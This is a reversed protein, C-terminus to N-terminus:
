AKKLRTGDTKIAKTIHLNGDEDESHLHQTLCEPCTTIIDVGQEDEPDFSFDPVISLTQKCVWCSPM